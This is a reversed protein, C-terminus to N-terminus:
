AAGPAPSAPTQAPDPAPADPSQVGAPAPASQRCRELFSRLAWSYQRAPNIGDLDLFYVRGGSVGTVEIRHGDETDIWMSGTDPTISGIVEEAGSGQRTTLDIADCPDSGHVWLLLEEDPNTMQMNVRMQAATMKKVELDAREGETMDWLSPWKISAPAICGSCKAILRILKLAQPTVDTQGAKVVGYWMRLDSEGTANMGAPSIGMLRTVPMDAAAALRTFGRLLLPDVATLNQAGVHEFSEGEADIVVARSISRAVDIIEMRDLAVQKQGNAIMDILGRVKFVAQSMDQLLLMVSRWSQDVDRLVEIPRQLVSLDRDHNRIKVRASTMAGGFLILRSAHVLAGPTADSPTLRYTRPDGYAPSRRDKVREAVTLEHGDAVMLYQLDGERLKSWDLPHDPPGLRDNIGLVIAGQGYLRGWIWAEKFKDLAAWRSVASDLEPDGTDVGFRMADEPLANVIKAPLDSAHYLNDLENLLLPRLIKIAGYSTSDRSGGLGTMLNVFADVRLKDRVDRAFGKSETLLRAFGSFPSGQAQVPEPTQAPSPAKPPYKQPKSV